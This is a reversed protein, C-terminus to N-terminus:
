VIQNIPLKGSGKFKDWLTKSSDLKEYILTKGDNSIKIVVEVKRSNSFNYKTARIGEKMRTFSSAFSQEPQKNGFSGSTDFEDREDSFQTKQKIEDIKESDVPHDLILSSDMEMSYDSRDSGNSSITATEQYEFSEDENADYDKM